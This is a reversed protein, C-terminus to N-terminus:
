AALLEGPGPLVLPIAVTRPIMMEMVVTVEEVRTVRAVALDAVSIRGETELLGLMVARTVQDVQGEVMLLHHHHPDAEAELSVALRVAKRAPCLHRREPSTFLANIGVM